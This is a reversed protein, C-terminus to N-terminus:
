EVETLFQAGTSQPRPQMARRARSLPFGTARQVAARQHTVGIVQINVARERQSLQSAIFGVPSHSRPDPGLQMRELERVVRKARLPTLVVQPLFRL